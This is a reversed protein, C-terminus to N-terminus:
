WRVRPLGGALSLRLVRGEMRIATGRNSGTVCRIILIILLLNPVIRRHIISLKRNEGNLPM